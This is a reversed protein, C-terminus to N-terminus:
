VLRERAKASLYDMSWVMLVIAWVAMGAADYQNLQVNIRFFQGIGGGGVYGIVTSMRINIDWQYLIFALFRPVIQPVFAYGLVQLRSAGTATIAEVPGPDIEEISESFLKGLNPINNAALALVGAFPGIGVWASAILALILPEVSRSLNFLTRFLYYVGRGIATRGMVNSAALFSLPVAFFAGLTTALLAMLLTVLSLRMVERFSNSLRPLGSVEQWTIVVQGPEPDEVTLDTEVLPHITTEWELNGEADTVCCERHVRLFADGFAWRVSVRRNPPLDHGRITLPDGVQGCSTSLEVRAGSEVPPLVDVVACPVALGARVSQEEAPRTFLDPVLFANLLRIGGRAGRVLEVPRIESVNWSWAFAAVFLAVLLVVTVARRLPGPGRGAPTGAIVRERLRGSVYDLIAVVLVIAIIATAMSRLRNLRIWQIVLFGLGADSVLGIVTSLRVNIDWRYLTFSLFTPVIQPLVGYVVMQPFNAGTARIAEIPGPDISEIAESYLKGLAAITHITLALMGGFPGVGVWVVFVIAWMLTEISRVINLLARVVAYVARTAPNGWMLNRAALFSLPLALVMGLVTAMFALAVTEGIKELVLNLTQTPQPTGYPQRQIARIIHTQTQGEAPMQTLPVALPVNFAIQFRGEEDTEFRLPQGGELIRQQDGIPNVWLLDGELEPFFGEGSLQISDGVQACPVSTALRPDASAQRGPPPLPDVCPVQFPIFGLRDETPYELLEPQTLATLFPRVSPWGRLLREPRVEVTHVGLGYVILIALTVPITIRAPRGAALRYADWPAWLWLLVLPPLLAVAGLALILAGLIAITLFFAIGRKRQGLHFQGSGPLLLSLLAAVLPSPTARPAGGKGNQTSM